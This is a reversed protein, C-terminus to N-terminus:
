FMTKVSVSTRRGGSRHHGYCSYLPHPCKDWRWCPDSHNVLMKKVSDARYRPDSSTEPIAWPLPTSCILSCVPFASDANLVDQFPEQLTAQAFTSNEAETARENLASLAAAEISSSPDLVRTLSQFLTGLSM